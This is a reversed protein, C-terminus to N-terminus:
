TVANYTRAYNIVSRMAIQMPELVAVLILAAVNNTPSGTAQAAM